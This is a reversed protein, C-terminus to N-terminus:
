AISDEAAVCVVCLSCGGWGKKGASAKIEGDNDDRRSLQAERFLLM